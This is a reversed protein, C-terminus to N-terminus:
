NCNVTTLTDNAELTNVIRDLITNLEPSSNLNPNALFTFIKNKLTSAIYNRSKDYKYNIYDSDKLREQLKTLYDNTQDKTIGSTNSRIIQQTNDATRTFEQERFERITAASYTIKEENELNILPQLQNVLMLLQEEEIGSKNTKIVTGDVDTIFSPNYYVYNYALNGEVSTVLNDRFGALKIKNEVERQKDKSTVISIIVGQNLNDNEVNALEEKTSSLLRENTAEITVTSKAPQVSDIHVVNKLGELKAGTVPNDLLITNTVQKTVPDYKSQVKTAAIEEPSILLNTLTNLRDLSEKYEKSQNYEENNTYSEITTLTDEFMEMLINEDIDLERFVRDLDSDLQNNIDQNSQVSQKFDDYTISDNNLKAIKYAISEVDSSAGTASIIKNNELLYNLSLNDETLTNGAILVPVAANVKDPNLVKYSEYSEPSIVEDSLLYFLAPEDNENLLLGEQVESTMFSLDLSKTLALNALNDSLFGKFEETTYTRNNFNYYCQM